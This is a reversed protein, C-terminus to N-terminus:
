INNLIKRYFILKNKKNNVIKANIYKTNENVKSPIYQTLQYCKKKLLIIFCVM